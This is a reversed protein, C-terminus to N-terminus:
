MGQQKVPAADIQTERALTASRHATLPLQICQRIIRTVQPQFPLTNRNTMVASVRHQIGRKGAQQNFVETCVDV